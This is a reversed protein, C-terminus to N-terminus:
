QIGNKTKYNLFGCVYTNQLFDCNISLLVLVMGYIIEWSHALIGELM